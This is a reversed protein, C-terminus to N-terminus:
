FDPFASSPPTFASSYRGVGKTIRLEDIFGNLYFFYTTDNLAGIRLPRSTAVNGTFSDTNSVTSGAQNGDVFVRIQGSVRSVAVHYWTNLSFAYSFNLDSTGTYVNVTTFSSATGNIRVQWGIPTGTGAKYTAAIAAGYSGAYSASYAQLRVFFEITLDGTGLEFAADVATTLYDGSGDFIASSAGFKSQATSINAGGVANISKPASSSDAFITSGNSGEMHMLLSVNSFYPDGAYSNATPGSRASIIGAIVRAV